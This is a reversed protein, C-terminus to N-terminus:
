RNRECYQELFERDGRIVEFIEGCCDCELNIQKPPYSMGCSMVFWGFFSYKQKPVVWPDGVSHGCECIGSVVKASGHM